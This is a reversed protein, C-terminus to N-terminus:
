LKRGKSYSVSKTGSDGMREGQTAGAEGFPKSDMLRKKVCVGSSLTEGSRYTSWNLEIDTKTWKPWKGSLKIKRFM